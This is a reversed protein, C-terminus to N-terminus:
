HLQREWAERVGACVFVVEGWDPVAGADGCSVDDHRQVVGDMEDAVDYGCRAADLGSGAGQEGRPFSPFQPSVPPFSPVAVM